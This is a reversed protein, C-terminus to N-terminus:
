QKMYLKNVLYNDIYDMRMNFYTQDCEVESEWSQLPDAGMYLKLHLIDWISFNQHASVSLYSKMEEYLQNVDAKIQRSYRIHVDRVHNWFLTDQAIRDYYQYEKELIGEPDKPRPGEYAGVGLSWEFDWVPGAYVPATSSSDSKYFYFNPDLNFMLQNVYYWKAFSEIDIMKLWKRNLSFNREYLNHEFEDLWHSVDAMQLSTLTGDKPYKFTIHRGCWTSIVNVYETRESCDHDLHTNLEIIFGSDKIPIRFKGKKVNECLLYTGLQRGNLILDVFMWQPTYTMEVGESIKFSIANRLLSKDTYNALLVYDKNSHWGPFSQKEKLQIKYPKKPYGRWTSEGRGRIELDGSLLTDGDQSFVYAGEVYETKSLIEVGGTSVSLVPLHSQPSFVESEDSWEEEDVVSWRDECTSFFLLCTVCIIFTVCSLIQKFM